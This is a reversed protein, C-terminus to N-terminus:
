DVDEPIVRERARATITEIDASPDAESEAVCANLFERILIHAPKGVLIALYSIRQDQEPNPPLYYVREGKKM